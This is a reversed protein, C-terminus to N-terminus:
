GAAVASQQQYYCHPSWVKNFDAYPWGSGGNYLQLRESPTLVRKWFRARRMLGDYYTTTGVGIWGLQFASTSDFVGASHAVVNKVANVEIGLENNVSDHWFIVVYPVGISAPGFNSATVTVVGGSAGTSSVFGQFRDAVSVAYGLRFERQDGTTIWKSVFDMASTSEPTVEVSITFDIDGTSLDVSDARTFHETDTAEFDRWGGSSGITGSTETLTNSGHSDLADGSAENLEWAAILSTLLSV